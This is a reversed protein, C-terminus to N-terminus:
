RRCKEIPEIQYERVFEEVERKSLTKKRAHGASSDSSAPPAKALRQRVGESTVEQVDKHLRIFYLAGAIRRGEYAGSPIILHNTLDYNEVIEQLYDEEPELGWALDWDMNCGFVLAEIM